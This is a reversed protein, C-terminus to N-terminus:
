PRSMRVPPRLRPWLRGAAPTQLLLIGGVSLAALGWRGALGARVALASLLIYAAFRARAHRAALLAAVELAATGSLWWMEAAVAVTASVALSLVLLVLVRREAPDSPWRAPRSRVPGGM